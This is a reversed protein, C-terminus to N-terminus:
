KSCEDANKDEGKKNNKLCECISVFASDDIIDATLGPSFSADTDLVIWQNLKSFFSEKSNIYVIEPSYLDMYMTRCHSCRIEDMYNGTGCKCFWKVDSEFGNISDYDVYGTKESRAIMYLSCDDAFDNGEQICEALYARFLADREEKKSPSSEKYVSGFLEYALQPIDTGSYYVNGLLGDSTLLFGDLDDMKGMKFIFHQDANQDLITYTATGGVENEQPPSIVHSNEGFCLIAGDGIHGLIYENKHIACLLLTSKMQEYKEPCRVSVEKQIKQVFDQSSYKQSYYAEFNRCMEQCAVQTVIKAGEDAYQNSSVGDALAGVSVSHSIMYETHDQCIDHMNGCSECNTIIWNTM